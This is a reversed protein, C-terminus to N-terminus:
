RVIDIVDLKCVCSIDREEISDVEYNCYEMYEEITGCFLLREEMDIVFAESGVKTVDPHVMKLVQLHMVQNYGTCKNTVYLEYTKEEIIGQM